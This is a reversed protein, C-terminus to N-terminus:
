QQIDRLIEACVAIMLQGNNSDPDFDRTDARTVYGFDPALREYKEHIERAMIEAMGYKPNKM